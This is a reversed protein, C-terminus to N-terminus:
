EAGLVLVDARLERRRGLVFEANLGGVLDSDEKHKKM